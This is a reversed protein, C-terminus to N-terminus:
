DEQSSLGPNIGDRAEHNRRDDNVAGPAQEAIRQFECQLSHWRPYINLRDPFPQRLPRSHRSNVVNMNPRHTRRLRRQRRMQHLWVSLQVIPEQMSNAMLQLLSELNLM